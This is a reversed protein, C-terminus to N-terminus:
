RAAKENLVVGAKIMNRYGQKKDEPLADWDFAYGFADCRAKCLEAAKEDLEKVAKQEETDPHTLDKAFYARFDDMTGDILIAVSGRPTKGLVTAEKKMPTLCKDGNQWESGALVRRKEAEQMDRYARKHPEGNNMWAAESLEKVCQNFEGETCVMVRNGDDVFTSGGTFLEGAVRSAGSIRYDCLAKLIIKKNDHTDEWGWCPECGLKSVAEVIVISGCDEADVEGQLDDLKKVEWHGIEFYLGMSDMYAVRDGCDKKHAYDVTLIPAGIKIMAHTMGMPADNLIKRKQENTLNM